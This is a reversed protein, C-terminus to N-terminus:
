RIDLKGRKTRNTPYNLPTSPIGIASADSPTITLTPDMPPQQGITARTFMLIALAGLKHDRYANISRVFNDAVPVRKGNQCRKRATPKKPM